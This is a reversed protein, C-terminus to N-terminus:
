LHLLLSLSLWSRKLTQAFLASQTSGSPSAECIKMLIHDMTARSFHPLFLCILKQMQYGSHGALRKLAEASPLLFLFKGVMKAKRRARFWVHSRYLDISCSRWSFGYSRWHSEPVLHSFGLHNPWVVWQQYFLRLSSSSFFSCEWPYTMSVGCLDEIDVKM